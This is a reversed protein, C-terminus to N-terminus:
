KKVNGKVVQTPNTVTVFGQASSTNGARDSCGVQLAYVRTSGDSNKSARVSASFQGTIMYETSPAGTISQLSCSPTADVDDTATVSVEVPTWKGNPPWIVSPTASIASISPATTDPPVVVATAANSSNGAADSCRVTLTYTRGGTARLRASFPGTIAYDDATTATSTISTLACAPAADVDDTAAVAVTVSVLADNPPWITSPSAGVNSIVPATTDPPVTVNVSSWAVNNSSDVCLENFTYTRGGIALVTGTNAGTVNFDTPASGPGTINGLKCVPTEGSDDTAVATTTVTVTQGRPPWIVSPTATLSTFVPPTTDPTSSSLPTLRFVAPAGNYTGEGAIVGSANIAKAQSLGWGASFDLLSNLDKTGDADTHVFAHLAGGASM